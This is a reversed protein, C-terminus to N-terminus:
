DLPEPLGVQPITVQIQFDTARNDYSCVELYYLGARPGILTISEPSSGPRNSKWLYTPEGILTLGEVSSITDLGVYLDLDQSFRSIGFTVNTADEPVAACFYQCNAPYLEATADMKTVHVRNSAIPTAQLDCANLAPDLTATDITNGSGSCGTLAIALALTL